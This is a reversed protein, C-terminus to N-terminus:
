QPETQANDAVKTNFLESLRMALSKKAAPSVGQKGIITELITESLPKHEIM